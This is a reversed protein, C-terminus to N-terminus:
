DWGVQKRLAAAEKESMKKLAVRLTYNGIMKGNQIYLWDSIAEKRVNVKRGIAINTVIEPDNDIIGNFSGDQYTVDKLWFHEVKDGDAIPVKVSVQYKGAQVIKIFDDVENRARAIAANMEQDESSVTVTKDQNVAKEQTCAASLIILLLVLFKNVKIM